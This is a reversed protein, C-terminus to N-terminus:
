RPRKQQEKKASKAKAPKATEEPKWFANEFCFYGGHVSARCQEWTNYSCDPFRSSSSELCYRKNFFSAQADARDPATSMAVAAAVMVLVFRM